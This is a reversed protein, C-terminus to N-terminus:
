PIAPPIAERQLYIKEATAGSLTEALWFGRHTAGSVVFSPFSYEPRPSRLATVLPFALM